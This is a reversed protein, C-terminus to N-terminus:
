AAEVPQRRSPVRRSARGTWTAWLYGAAFAARTAQLAVTSWSPRLSAGLTHASAEAFERVVHRPAGLLRREPRVPSRDRDMVAHTVGSWFFWRLFYALTLRSAPVLHRVRIAPDYVASYGAARIRECLEHDEGSLLTGRLKGLHSPYGGVGLYADRRVALNAGLVVRLGLPAAAHGYHLLGLPAAMRGFGEGSELSLWGPVRRGYLPLVPGGVLAVEGSAMVRRIGAIWDDAVLVDDDTFALVEGRTEAVGSAVANSKGPRKETVLRVRGPISVSAEEVVRVTDDTSGNNAVVIEDWPLFGQRAMQRLCSKLLGARNYTAIVVSVRM